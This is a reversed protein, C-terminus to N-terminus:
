IIRFIGKMASKSRDAPLSGHYPIPGRYDLFLILVSQQSPLLSKSFGTQTATGRREHGLTFRHPKKGTNVMIFRALTGRQARKPTVQIAADTITVRVSVVPPPATTRTQGPSQAAALLAVASLVALVFFRPKV